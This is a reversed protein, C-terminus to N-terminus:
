GTSNDAHEMKTLIAELLHGYHRLSDLNNSFRENSSPHGYLLRLSDTETCATTLHVLNEELNGCDADITVM